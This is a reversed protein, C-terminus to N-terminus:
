EPDHMLVNIDRVQHAPSEGLTASRRLEALLDAQTLGRHRPQRAALRPRRPRKRRGHLQYPKDASRHGHRNSFGPGLGAICRLGMVRSSALAWAMARPAVAWVSSMMSRCRSSKEARRAARM